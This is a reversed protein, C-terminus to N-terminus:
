MWGKRTEDKFEQGSMDRKVIGFIDRIDAKKTIQVLIKCDEQLHEREVFSKPLLIGLSNGIRKVTLETVM